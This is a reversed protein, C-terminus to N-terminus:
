LNFNFAQLYAAKIPKGEQIAPKWKEMARIVRKAEKDLLPHVSEVVEIEGVSGDTQVVYKVVVRGQISDTLAKEPYSLEQKIHQSIGIEGNPYMPWQDVLSFGSSGKNPNIEQYDKENAVKNQASLCLASLITFILVIYKM